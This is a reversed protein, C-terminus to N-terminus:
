LGLLNPAIKMSGRSRRGSTSSPLPWITSWRILSVRCASILRSSIAAAIRVRKSACTHHRTPSMSRFGRSTRHQAALARGVPPVGWAAACFACVLRRIGQTEVEDRLMSVQPPWGCCPCLPSHETGAPVDVLASLAEAVPSLFGRALFALPVPASDFAEAGARFDAGTLLALLLEARRAPEGDSAARAAVTIPEPASAPVSRCFRRFRPPCCTSRSASLGCGHGSPRRRRSSRCGGLWMVRTVSPQRCTSYRYTSSSFRNLM